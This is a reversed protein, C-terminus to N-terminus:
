RSLWVGCHPSKCWFVIIHRLSDGSFEIGPLLHVDGFLKEIRKHRLIEIEAIRLRNALM